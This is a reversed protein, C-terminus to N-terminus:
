PECSVTVKNVAFMLASEERYNKELAQCQTSKWVIYQNLVNLKKKHKRM